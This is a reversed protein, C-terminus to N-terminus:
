VGRGDGGVWSRLGHGARGEDADGVDGRVFALLDQQLAPHLAAGALTPQVEDPQAVATADDLADGKAVLQVLIVKRQRAAQRLLGGDAHGAHHAAVRARRTQRAAIFDADAAQLQDARGLVKGDRGLLVAGLEQHVPAM